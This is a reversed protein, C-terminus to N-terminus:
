HAYPRVTFFPNRIRWETSYKEGKDAFPASILEDDVWIAPTTLLIERAIESYQPNEIQTLGKETLAGVTARPPADGLVMWREDWIKGFPVPPEVRAPERRISIQDSKTVRIIAGGLTHGTTRQEIANIATEIAHARPAYYAGSMTCIADMMLRLRVAQNASLFRAREVIIEGAPTVHAILEALDKTATFLVQKASRLRKTTNNIAPVSIGADSLTEVVKRMKVREYRQDENTPDDIWTIDNASLYKRLDARRTSLLPRVWTIGEDTIETDMASLGQVGSGRSLRMLFTEAQDDATHGLAVHTLNHDHAWASILSKRARRANDSLNGQAHREEWVATQHPINLTTCFRAVSAAENASEPRLRHDVTIAMLDLDTQTHLLHLLAMSDGGGSVAVGLRRNPMNALADQDLQAPQDPDTPSM